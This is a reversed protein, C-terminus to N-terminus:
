VEVEFGRITSEDVGSLNAKLKAREYRDEDMDYSLFQPAYWREDGEAHVVWGRSEESNAWALIEWRTMERTNKPQEPLCRYFTIGDFDLSRGFGTAAYHGYRFTRGSVDYFYRNSNQDYLNAGDLMARIADETTLPRMADYAPDFAWEPWAWFGEDVSLSYASVQPVGTITAEMGAYKFMEVGIVVGTGDPSVIAGILGTKPQADFWEKPRIRVKDGVEYKM